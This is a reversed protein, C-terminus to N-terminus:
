SSQVSHVERIASLKYRAFAQAAAKRVGASIEKKKSSMASAYGAEIAEDSTYWTEDALLEAVSKKTDETRDSLVNVFTKTMSRLAKTTQSGWKELESATGCAFLCGWPEHVMLMSGEGMLRTDASLFPLIAASAVLGRAEATIETGNTARARLDSYLALGESVFGGPSEILLRLKKPNAEDLKAIIDKASVGYWDDLPGQIRMVMEDGDQSTELVGENTGEEELCKFEVGAHKAVARFHNLMKVLFENM